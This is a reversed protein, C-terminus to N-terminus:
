NGNWEIDYTLAEIFSIDKKKGIKAYHWMTLIQSLFPKIDEARFVTDKANVLDKIFKNLEGLSRIKPLAYVLMALIVTKNRKDSPRIIKDTNGEFALPLNDEDAFLYTGSTTRPNCEIPYVKGDKKSKIFDFSIQGTFNLEKVIKTVIDDIQEDFVSEFYITAGQGARYISPYIAHGLVKGDKAISYSCLADGDIFEQVVWPYSESVNIENLKNKDNIITMTAFRSFEPKVIFFEQDKIEEKILNIDSFIKTKPFSIDLIQLLEIFKYKSHLRKLISIDQTFVSCYKELEKKYMGVYFTEECTPILLDAKLVSIHEKLTDIFDETKQAPPPVYLTKKTYKSFSTINKIFTEAIYVDYDFKYFFRALELTFPSRGGTFIVKKRM